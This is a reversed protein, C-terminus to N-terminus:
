NNNNNQDNKEHKKTRFHKNLNGYSSFSKDCTFCYNLEIKDSEVNERLEMKYFDEDCKPCYAYYGKSVKDKKVKTLCRPCNYKKM